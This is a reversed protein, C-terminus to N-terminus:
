GRDAGDVALNLEGELFGSNIPNGTPEESGEVNFEMASFGMLIFIGVIFFAM